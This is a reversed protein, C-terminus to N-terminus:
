LRGRRVSCRTYGIMPTCSLAHTASKSYMGDIRRTATQISRLTRSISMLVLPCFWTENTCMCTCVYMCVYMCLFHKFHCFYFGWPGSFLFVYDYFHYLFCFLKWNGASHRWHCVTLLTTRCVTGSRRVPLLSHETALLGVTLAVKCKVSVLGIVGVNLFLYAQFVSHIPSTDTLSETRSDINRHKSIIQV